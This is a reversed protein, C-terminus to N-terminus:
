KKKKGKYKKRQYLIAPIEGQIITNEKRDQEQITIESNFGLLDAIQRTEAEITDKETWIKDKVENNETEKNELMKNEQKKKYKEIM